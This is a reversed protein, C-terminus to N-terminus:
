VIPRMSQYSRRSDQPTNSFAPSDRVHQLFQGFGGSNPELSPGWVWTTKPKTQNPKSTQIPNSKAAPWPFIRYGINNTPSKLGIFHNTVMELCSDSPRQFARLRACIKSNLVPMQTQPSARGGAFGFAEPPEVKGFTALYGLSM